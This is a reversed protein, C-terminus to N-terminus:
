LPEGQPLSAQDSSSRMPLTICFMTGHVTGPSVWLRGGHAQIISRCISLGMGMGDAKTTFFADFIRGVNQPAIGAGCDEVLILIESAALIQSKVSLLRPREVVSSMADLANNFINLLVQQLQVRDAIIEPVEESLEKRLAVRQREREPRVLALVDCILDNVRVSHRERQGKGFIERISSIVDSARRGDDVIRKL